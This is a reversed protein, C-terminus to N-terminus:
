IYLTDCFHTCVECEQLYKLINEHSLVSLIVGKVCHFTTQTCRIYCHLNIRGEFYSLICGNIDSGGAVFLLVGRLSLEQLTLIKHGGNNVQVAKVRRAMSNVLAECTAVPISKWEEM